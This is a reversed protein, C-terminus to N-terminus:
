KLDLGMEYQQAQPHIGRGNLYATVADQPQNTVSFPGQVYGAAMAMVERALDERYSWVDLLPAGQGGAFLAGAGREHDMWARLQPYRRLYSERRQWAPQIHPSRAGFYEGMTVPLFIRQQDKASDIWWDPGRLRYIQVTRRDAFGVSRYIRHAHNQTLVELFIRKLGLRKALEVQAQLLSRFLGRGRFRPDISTGAIWAEAGDVSLLCFGVVVDYVVYALSYRLSVRGLHLWVQMQEPTYTMDHYYGQWCRNWIDTMDKAQIHQLTILRQGKM